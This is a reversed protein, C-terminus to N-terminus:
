ASALSHGSETRARQAEGYPLHIIFATGTPSLPEVDLRGGHAKIVSRAIVLGMGTGERRTTFFADFIRNRDAPAIGPGNDEVRIVVGRGEWCSCRVLLTRRRDSNSLAEIANQFLNLLAQQFQLPNVAIAEPRGEMVLDTSVHHIRASSAAMALTRSLIQSPEILTRESNGRGFMARTSELIDNARLCSAVIDDLVEVTEEPPRASEGALASRATQANILLAALPQRLEHAISASLVDRILVRHEREQTQAILQLVSQAYLKSTEALLAFLAFLASLLGL